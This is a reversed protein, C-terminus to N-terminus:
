CGRLLLPLVVCGLETLKSSGKKWGHFVRISVQMSPKTARNDLQEDARVVAFERRM